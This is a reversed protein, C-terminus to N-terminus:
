VFERLTVALLKIGEEIRETKVSSYGLRFYNKPARAGYFLAECPEIVVGRQMATVALSTANVHGPAKVWYSTGGFTPATTSEPLHESLADKMIQWREKYEEHLRKVLSDYHGLSIFLSTTRQNNAPPHRYMQRRLSRAEKIFDVPGVM